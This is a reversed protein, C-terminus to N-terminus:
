PCRRRGAELVALRVAGAAVVKPVILEVFKTPRRSWHATAIGL